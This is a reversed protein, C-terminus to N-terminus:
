TMGRLHRKRHCSACLWEIELPKTYDNHHKHLSTKQNCKECIEKKIIKGARIANNAADKAKLQLPNEEKLKRRYEKSYIKRKETKNSKRSLERRKERNSEDWNKGWERYADKHTEYYKKRTIKRKKSHNYKYIVRKRAESIM